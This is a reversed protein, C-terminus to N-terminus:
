NISIKTTLWRDLLASLSGLVIGSYGAVMGWAFQKVEGEIESIAIIAFGSAAGVLIRVILYSMQDVRMSLQAFRQIKLKKHDCITNLLYIAGGFLGGYAGMAAAKWAINEAYRYIGGIFIAWSAIYLLGIIKQKINARQQKTELLNSNM